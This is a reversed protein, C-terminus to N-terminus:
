PRHADEGTRALVVATVRAAGARRLAAAASELTAGSTMVDDMLLVARGRLAAARQPDVAFAHRLNASRQRRDLRAQSATDRVRLLLRPALKAPALQRALELAQNFGREALRQNSLPVPVLLECDALASEIGPARRMVEALQGAWGPHQQYKFRGILGTWPFGYSVAAHCADLPPPRRLCAGCRAVGEPLPLACTQCRPRPRAFRQLCPECVPQTPWAGCVECCSPLHSLAATIWARLMPEIYQRAAM